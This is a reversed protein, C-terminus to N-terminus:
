LKRGDIRYGRQSLEVTAHTVHVHVDVQLFALHLAFTGLHAPLLGGICLCVYLPVEILVLVLYVFIWERLNPVEASM